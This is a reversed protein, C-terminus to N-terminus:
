GRELELIQKLAALNDDVGSRVARRALQPLLGAPGPLEVEADLRVVTEGSESTFRYRYLFPTPGATAHIAFEHPAEHTIVDLQNLARGTPLKREMLYSSGVDHGGAATQRVTRVASNWRPFNLPESVYAFVEEVPRRIRMETEFSIV